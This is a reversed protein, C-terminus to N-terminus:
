GPNGERKQFDNICKAKKHGETDTGSEPRHRGLEVAFGHLPQEGLDFYLLHSPHTNGRAFVCDVAQHGKYEPIFNKIQHHFR